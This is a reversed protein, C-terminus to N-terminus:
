RGAPTRPAWCALPCLWGARGGSQRPPHPTGAELGPEAPPSLQRATARRPMAPPLCTAREREPHLFAAVQPQAWLLCGTPAPVGSGPGENEPHRPVETCRAGSIAAEREDRPTGPLYPGGGGGGRTGGGAAVPPPPIVTDPLKRSAARGQSPPHPMLRPGQGSRRECGASRLFLPLAARGATFSCREPGAGAGPERGPRASATRGPGPRPLCPAADPAWPHPRPGTRAQLILFAPGLPGLALM